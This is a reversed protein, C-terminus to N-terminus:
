AVTVPREGGRIDHILLVKVGRINAPTRDSRQHFFVCVCVCVCVCVHTHTHGDNSHLHGTHHHTFRVSHSTFQHNMIIYICCLQFTNVYVSVQVDLRAGLSILARAAGVNDSEAACMLATHHPASAMQLEIDVGGFRKGFGREVIGRIQAAGQRGGRAAKHLAEHNPIASAGARRLIAAIDKNKAYQLATKTGRGGEDPDAGADVLYQVCETHGRQVANTLATAGNRGVTDLSAGAEVLATIYDLKGAIAVTILPTYQADDLEDINIGGEALLAHLRHLNNPARCDTCIKLLTATREANSPRAHRKAMHAKLYSEKNFTINQKVCDPDTCSYRGRGGQAELRGRTTPRERHRRQTQLRREEQERSQLDDMVGRKFTLEVKSDGAASLQPPSFHPPPFSVSIHTLFLSLSFCLSIVRRFSDMSRM